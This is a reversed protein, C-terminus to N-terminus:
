LPDGNKWWGISQEGTFSNTLVQVTCDPYLEERDYLATELYVQTRRNWVKVAAAPSQKWQKMVGCKPCGVWGHRFPTPIDKMVAGEGCFPCPSLDNKKSM